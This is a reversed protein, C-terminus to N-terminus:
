PKQKLYEDIFESYDPAGQSLLATISQFYAKYEFCFDMLTDRLNAKQKDRLWMAGERRYENHWDQNMQDISLSSCDINDSNLPFQKEIEEDTLIPKNSIIEQLMKRCNKYIQIVEEKTLVEFEKDPLESRQSAYEEMAEIMKEETFPSSQVRYKLLIEAATKM